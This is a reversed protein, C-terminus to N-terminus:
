GVLGQLPGSNFEAHGYSTRTDGFLNLISVLLNNHPKGGADSTM